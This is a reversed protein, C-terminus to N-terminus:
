AMLCLILIHLPYFVYMIYKAITGHIFGRKGNYLMIPISALVACFSFKRTTFACFLVLSQYMRRTRLLYMLVITAIGVMDYDTKWFFEVILISLIILSAKGYRFHDIAYLCVIGLGLTFLVNQHWFQWFPMHHMMNWPVVSIVAFVFLSLIYKRINKTHVYGEVALFAFLPFSIRGIVARMIFYLSIGTNGISFFPVFAEKCDSLLILATHDILMCVM